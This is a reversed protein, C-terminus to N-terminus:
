LFLNINLEYVHWVNILLYIILAFILVGLLICATDKFKNDIVNMIKKEETPYFRKLAEKVIHVPLWSIGM